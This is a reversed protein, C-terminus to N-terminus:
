GAALAARLVKLDRGHAEVAWSRRQTDPHPYEFHMSIPARVRLRRLEEVFAALPVMGDGLPRNRIRWEEDSREWDFDKFVLTDIFPAMVELDRIWSYGGEAM